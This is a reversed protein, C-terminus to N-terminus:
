FYLFFRRFFKIVAMFYKWKQESYMYIFRDQLLCLYRVDTKCINCSSRIRCCYRAIGVVYAIYCCKGYIPILKSTGINRTRNFGLRTGFVAVSACASSHRVAIKRLAATTHRLSKLCAFNKRSRYIKWGSLRLFHAKASTTSKRWYFLMCKTPLM